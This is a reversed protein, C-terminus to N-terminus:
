LELGQPCWCSWRRALRAVARARARRTSRLSFPWSPLLGAGHLRQQPTCRSRSAIPQRNHVGLAIRTASSLLSSPGAVFRCRRRAARETAGRHTPAPLLVTPFPGTTLVYSRRHGSSALHRSWAHRERPPCRRERLVGAAPLTSQ